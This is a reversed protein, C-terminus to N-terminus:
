RGQAGGTFFNQFGCIVRLVGREQYGVSLDLSGRQGGNGWSRVPIMLAGWFSIAAPQASPEKSCGAGTEPSSEQHCYPNNGPDEPSNQKEEPEGQILHSRATSVDVHGRTGAPPIVWM